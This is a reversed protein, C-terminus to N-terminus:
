DMLENATTQLYDIQQQLWKKMEAPKVIESGGEGKDDADGGLAAKQATLDAAVLGFRESM